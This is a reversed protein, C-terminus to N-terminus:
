RQLGLAKLQAMLGSPSVNLRIALRNLDDSGEETMATKIDQPTLDSALRIGEQRLRAYLSNKAIGLSRATAGVYWDHRQLTALLVEKSIEAPPARRNKEAPPATPQGEQAPADSVPMSAPAWAPLPKATASTSLATELRNLRQTLWDPLRAVTLGRSEIAVQLAVNKVERVNGPWPYQLLGELLRPTLWPNASSLAATSLRHDAGLEALSARLFHLFLLPVDLRRESLPPLSICTTRLRFLLPRRFRGDQTQADLDADTATIWRVNVQQPPGGVPQIEGTELARLLMPQVDSPTEGIEDLFLTGGDADGFYGRRASLAGTFAGRAHGFLEAVVTSPNLAGMNIVTLPRVARRSVEHLARAVREKGAGSDGQILVPVDLPGLREIEARVRQIGESVGILGHRNPSAADFGTLHLALLVRGGLSLFVGQSLRRFSFTESLGGPRGDVTFALRESSATLMVSVDGREGRRVQFTLPSRSVGPDKLPEPSSGEATSFLPELRSLQVPTQRETPWRFQQGVRELEPHFLLTLCLIPSITQEEFPSEPEARFAELTTRDLAVDRHSNSM